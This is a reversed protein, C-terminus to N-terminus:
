RPTRPPHAEKQQRFWRQTGNMYNYVVPVEFSRSEGNQRIKLVIKGEVNQETLKPGSYLFFIRGTTHPPVTDLSKEVTLMSKDFELGVVEAPTDLGNRIRLPMPQRPALAFFPLREPLVELRAPLTKPHAKELDQHIRETISMPPDIRVKWGDETLIWTEGAKSKLYTQFVSLDFSVVVKAKDQTVLDVSVCRWNKLNGDQRNLFNNLDEPYVFQMATAKDHKELAEWFGTVAKTLGAPATSPGPQALTASLALLLLYLM